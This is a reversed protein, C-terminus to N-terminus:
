SPHLSLLARQRWRHSLETENSTHQASPVLAATPIQNPSSRCNTRYVLRRSWAGHLCRIGLAQPMDHACQFPELYDEAAEAPNGVQSEGASQRFARMSTHFKDSRATRCDKPRSEAVTQAVVASGTVQVNTTRCWILNGCSVDLWDTSSVAVRQANVNRMSLVSESRAM